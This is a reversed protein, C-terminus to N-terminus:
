GMAVHEPQVTFVKGTALGHIEVSVVALVIVAFSFFFAHPSFSERQPGAVLLVVVMIIIKLAFSVMVGSSALLPFREWPIWLAGVTALTIALGSGGGWAVGLLVEGGRWLGMLAALVALGAGVVLVRLATRRFVENYTQTATSQTRM